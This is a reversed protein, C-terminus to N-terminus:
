KVRVRRGTPDDISGAVVTYNAVWFGELIETMPVNTGGGFGAYGVTPNTLPTVQSPETLTVTVVTGIIATTDNIGYNTLVVDIDDETFVDAFLGATSILLVLITVFFKSKTKM